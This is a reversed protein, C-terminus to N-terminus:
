PISSGTRMRASAARSADSRRLGVAAGLLTWTLPDELFAAYLLTHFTLAAFCAAVVARAVLASGPPDRGRLGRLGRALLGGAALLLVAYAALGVVGQEAAITIPITHSAAVARESSAEERARYREAFSGSGYGWLPRDAFMDLGGRMLDFRGSTAQDLSRESELDLRLLGPFSLVVALAVAAAAATAAAARRAGWRGAALVALGVLLAAFSSQSFTLVLGAWLVALGIAALVGDRPRRGWLLLGAVAIMVLVLFRGYINPDFFLSNVRFYSEFQNSAIVKPNLLLEREAYEWFGVGAFVLALGVAVGFCSVVVRRSWAVDALLKLLIAFPVYFFAVNKVAQQFDTTYAAQLAYLLIAALVALEVAAPRRTQPDDADQASPRGPPRLCRYAHALGAAAIVAYLPILLSATQGGLEIPLRFPVVAVVLPPLISPRRTLLAALAFLGAAGAAAVAAVITWDLVQELRETEWFEAVLVAPGLGLAALLSLARSRPSPLVCAGTAALTAVM